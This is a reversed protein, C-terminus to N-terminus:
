GVGARNMSADLQRDRDTVIKTAAEKVGDTGYVPANWHVDTKIVYTQHVAQQMGVPEPRGTRNEMLWRGPPLVNGQDANIAIGGRGFVNNAGQPGVTYYDEPLGLWRALNAADGSNRWTESYWNDRGAYFMPRVRSGDEATIWAGFNGEMIRQRDSDSGSFWSRAADPNGAISAITDIGVGQWPAAAGKTYGAQGPGWGHLMPRQKVFDGFIRSSDGAAIDWAAINGFLTREGPSMRQLMTWFVQQDGGTVKAGKAWDEDSFGTPISQLARPDTFGGTAYWNHANWFALAAAPSGYRGAIYNLGWDVQGVYGGHFDGTIDQPIGAAGSSSNRANPNWGSEHSWLTDLYAFQEPGWGFAALRARAYAKAEESGGVSPGGAFSMAQMQKDRLENLKAQMAFQMKNAMERGQLAPIGPGFDPPGPVMAQAIAFAAEGGVLPVLANFVQWVNNRSDGYDAARGQYHLSGSVHSGGTTSTPVAPIGQGTLFAQIMEWRQGPITGAHVHDGHGGIAFRGGAPDFFLEELSLGGGQFPLVRAGYWGAAVNLISMARQPSIGHQPVFAENGSPQDGLVRFTNPGTVFANRPDAPDFMGGTRFPITAGIDSLFQRGYGKVGEAYGALTLNLPPIRAQLNGVFSDAAAASGLAMTNTVGLMSQSIVAGTQAQLAATDLVMQLQRAAWVQQAQASTADTTAVMGTQAAAMTAQVLPMTSSTTALMGSMAQQVAAVTEDSFQQVVPVGQDVLGGLADAVAPAAGQAAGELQAAWEQGLGAGAEGAAAPATGAPMGAGPGVAGGGQRSTLPTIVGSRMDLLEPGDEGVLYLGNAAVPGGRQRLELQMMTGAAAAIAPGALAGGPLAGAAMAAASLAAGTGAAVKAAIGITIPVDRPISEVLGKIWRINADTEEVGLAALASPWYGPIKRVGADVMGAQLIAEATGQAMLLTAVQTPTLNYQERLALVAEISGSQVAAIVETRAQPPINGAQEIYGALDARAAIIGQLTVLTRAEKGDLANIGALTQTLEFPSTNPDFVLRVITQADTENLGKVNKLMDALQTQANQTEVTPTLKPMAAEASPIFTIGYNEGIKRASPVDVGMIAAAEEPTLHRGLRVQEAVVRMAEDAQAAIDPTPATTARQIINQYMIGLDTFRALAREGNNVMDIFTQDTSSAMVRLLKGGEEPGAVILRTILGPDFGKAYAAAIDDTFQQTNDIHAKYFMQVGGASVDADKGFASIVDNAKGWSERVADAAKQMEELETVSRALQGQQEATFAPTGSMGLLAETVKRVAKEGKDGDAALNVGLSRAIADISRTTIQGAATVDVGQAVMAARVADAGRATDDQVNRLRALEASAAASKGETIALADNTNTIAHAVHVFPGFADGSKDAERNVAALREELDSIAQNRGTFSTLDQSKRWTEIFKEGAQSAQEQTATWNRWAIIGGLIAITALGMPSVIFQLISTGLSSLSRGLTGATAQLGGMTGGLSNGVNWATSMVGAFARVGGVADIFFVGLRTAILTQSAASAAWMAGAVLGVAVGLQAVVPHDAAFGLVADLSSALANFGQITATGVVALLAGALPAAADRADALITAVSDIIGGLADWGPGAMDAAQSLVSGVNSGLDGLQSLGEVVVPLLATGLQIVVAMAQNKFLELQATTAKMQEHFVRATVGALQTKDSFQTFVNNYLQGQDAMLALAGRLGRVEPFLLQLEQVNGGTAVRLKEMVGHLGIAPNSLDRYSIGLEQMIASMGESPDILARMVRNLSTSSEAANIGSRTMTALAAGVEEISVGSQSALGVVDGLQQALEEFTLVGINVTQFLADSVRGAQNAGLGYANLAGVIAYASTHTDTMGATAAQQSVDLVHLGQAGYFGSSAIDYLGKALESASQQSRKSMEIVAQGTSEFQRQSFGSIASVNRMNQEFQAASAGAAILAAVVLTIGVAAANGATAMQGLGTSANRTEVGFGRVVTGAAAMEGAFTGVNTRLLVGITRDAPPPM